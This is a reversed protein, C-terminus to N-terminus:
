YVHAAARSGGHLVAVNRPKIARGAAYLGANLLWFEIGFQGEFVPYSFTFALIGWDYALLIAGWVWLDSRDRSFAIKWATRVTLAMAVVYAAILPVGGELLWATWQIEVWLALKRHDAFYVNIMGYRGLGAGLPYRPLLHDVTYQLFRGRNKSYTQRPDGSALTSFRKTVVTGAVSVAWAFSLFIVVSAVAAVIALKGKARRLALVILLAIVSVSIVVLVSRVQSVYLCTMGLFMAGMAAAQWSRRRETLLFGLGLVVTYFSSTAAGGPIDTLGM